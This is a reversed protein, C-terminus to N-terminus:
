MMVAKNKEMMKMTNAVMTKTKEDNGVHVYEGGDNPQTRRRRIRPM